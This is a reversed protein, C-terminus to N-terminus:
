YTAIPLEGGFTGSSMYASNGLEKALQGSKYQALLSDHDAYFSGEVYLHPLRRKGSKSVTYGLVSPHAFANVALLPVAQTQTLMKVVNLSAESKPADPTGEMFLVVKNGAIDSDLEKGVTSQNAQYDKVAKDVFTDYLKATSEGM